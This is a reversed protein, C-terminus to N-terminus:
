GHTLPRGRESVLEKAMLRSAGAMFLSDHTAIFSSHSSHNKKFSPFTTEISTCLFIFIFSPYFYLGCLVQLRSQTEFECFNRPNPHHTANPAQSGTFAGLLYRWGGVAEM